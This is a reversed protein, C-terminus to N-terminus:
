ANSPSFPVTAGAPGRAILYLRLLHLESYSVAGELTKYVPSLRELGLLQFAALARERTAPPLRSYKLIRQPDVRGGNQVFCYLHASVTQVNIGYATAIETLTEGAAFREGVQQSRPSKPPEVLPIAPPITMNKQQCAGIVELIQRGYRALKTQGVGSIALLQEENHPLVR